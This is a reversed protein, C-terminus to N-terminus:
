AREGTIYESPEAVQGAATQSVWRPPGSAAEGLSLLFTGTITMAAIVAFIKKICM